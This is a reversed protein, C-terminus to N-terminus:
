DAPRPAPILGQKLELLVSPGQATWDLLDALPWASVRLDSGLVVGAPGLAALAQPVDFHDPDAASGAAAGVARALDYGLVSGGVVDLVTGAPAGEVAAVYARALDDIHVTPVQNGGGNLVYPANGAAVYRLYGTLLPSAGGRGYVIAPRLVLSRVGDAAGALVMEELDARWQQAPAVGTLPDAASLYPRDMGAYVGLGSTLVLPRGSGSLEGLLLKLAALDDESPGQLGGIALYIVADAAAAQEQLVTRSAVDGRVFTIGDRPLKEESAASRALVVPEHGKALLARAVAGGIYGTGGILFVKM